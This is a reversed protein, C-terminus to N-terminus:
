WRVSSRQLELLVDLANEWHELALEAVFGDGFDELLIWGRWEDIAVPAPVVEPFRDAMLSTVVAERHFIDPVGKFFYRGGGADVQLLSSGSWVRYQEIEAIGALKSSIWSTADAFWGEHQWPALLPPQGDRSDAFGSCLPRVNESTPSTSCLLLKRTAGNVSELRRSRCTRPSSSPM